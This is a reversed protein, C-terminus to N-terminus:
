KQGFFQRSEKRPILYTNGVKNGPFKGNRIARMIKTRPIGWKEAAEEVTIMEPGDDDDSDSGLEDSVIGPTQAPQNIVDPQSTEMHQAARAMPMNILPDVMRAARTPDIPFATTIIEIASQRPLEGAGVKDLLDVLSTVQAGNLAATPAVSEGTSVTSVAADDGLDIDQDMPLPEFIQDGMGDPLKLINDDPTRQELGLRERAYEEDRDTPVIMGGNIAATISNIWELINEKEIDGHTLEPWLMRPVCNLRCWRYVLSGNLTEVIMDMMAGLAVAVMQTKDSALARSGTELAGLLAFEWMLPILKDVRTRVISENINIARSGGSSMLRFRFGTKSGDPNDECPILAGELQDRKVKRVLNFLYTRTAKQDANANKSMVERPAEMVPYGALDREIGVGEIEEKRNGFYYPRWSNRLGSRGMPNGGATDFRLHIMRDMPLIQQKYRPPARQTVSLLEEDSEDYNWDEITDQRRPEIARWGWLGDNYQSDLYKSPNEGRRIKYKIWMFCFGFTFASMLEDIVGRWPTAPMDYMCEELREKWVNAQAEVTKEDGYGAQVAKKVNAAKPNWDAQRVLLKMGRFAGGILPDNDSIERYVRMAKSGMLNPDFEDDIVSGYRKFGPGGRDELTGLDLEEEDIINSM